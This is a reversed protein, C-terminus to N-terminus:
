WFLLNSSDKWEWWGSLQTHFIADGIVGMNRGAETRMVTRLKVKGSTKYRVKGMWEGKLDQQDSAWKLNGYKDELYLVAEKLVKRKWWRLTSGRMVNLPAELQTPTIHLFTTENWERWIEIPVQSNDAKAAKAVQDSESIAAQNDDM